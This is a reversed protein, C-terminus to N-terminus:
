LPLDQLEEATQETLYFLSDALIRPPETRTRLGESYYVNALEYYADGLVHKAEVPRALAIAANYRAVTGEYDGLNRYALASLRCTRALM